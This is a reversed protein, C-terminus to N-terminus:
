SEEAAQEVQNEREVEKKDNIRTILYKLVVESIRFLREIEQALEFKGRVKLLTYFGETYNQVEYALKRKGWDDIEIIEAEHKQILDKLKTMFGELAEQELDPKLLFLVEYSRM